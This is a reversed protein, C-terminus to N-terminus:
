REKELFLRLCERSCFWHEEGELLAARSNRAGAEPERTVIRVADGGGAVLRGDDGLSAEVVAAFREVLDAGTEDGHTDTLASFGALDM